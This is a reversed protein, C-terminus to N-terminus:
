ACAECPESSLGLTCRLRSWWSPVPWNTTIVLKGVRSPFPTEGGHQAPEVWYFDNEFVRPPNAKPSHDFVILISLRSALDVAYQIPQGVYRTRDAAAAATKAVKVEADIGDHQLDDFGGGLPNRRTVRGGLEPDALLRDYLSDHFQKETVHANKRFSRDFQIAKAARM